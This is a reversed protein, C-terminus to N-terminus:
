KLMKQKARMYKVISKSLKIENEGSCNVRENQKDLCKKKSWGYPRKGKWWRIASNIIRKELEIEMGSKEKKSEM